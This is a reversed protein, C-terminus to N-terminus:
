FAPKYNTFTPHKSRSHMNKRQRPYSRGTRVPLLYRIVYQKIEILIKKLSDTKFLQVIFQKIKGSAKNMNIKMPYKRDTITKDVLKQAPDVIMFHLNTSLVTAYFDQKITIVSSGSMSELQLINKQFDINTEVGWRMAYLKKFEHNPYKVEDLLSTMLVEVNNKSLDVRVLRVIIGDNNGVKYGRKLLNKKANYSPYLTIIMSKKNSQLFEKVYNYNTNTRILFNISLENFKFLAVINYASYHRDFLMLFDSKLKGSDIFDCAMQFEGYRYPKIASYLIMKNLVDFCYFTKAMVSFGGPSKQGGFYKQLELLNTLTLSSGDNALVLFGKWRKIEKKAISYYNACLVDNWFKFFFPELKVRQQSFASVSCKLKSHLEEFFNELDTSLTKKNLRLIFLVILEFTLKRKRTFYFPKTTFLSRLGSDTSVNFLFTKLISITSVNTALM